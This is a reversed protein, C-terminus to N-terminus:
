PSIFGACRRFQVDLPPLNRIRRWAALDRNLEQTRFKATIAVVRLTRLSSLRTSFTDESGPDLLNILARAAMDEWAEITHLSTASTVLADGEWASTDAPTQHLYLIRCTTLPFCSFLGAWLRCVRLVRTWLYISKDPSQQCGAEASTASAIFVRLLTETPLADISPGDIRSCNM